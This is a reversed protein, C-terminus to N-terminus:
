LITSIFTCGLTPGQKRQGLWAKDKLIPFLTKETSIIFYTKGTGRLEYEYYASIWNNFSCKYPQLDLQSFVEKVHV